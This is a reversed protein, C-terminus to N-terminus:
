GKRYQAQAVALKRSETPVGMLHLMRHQLGTARWQQPQLGDVALARLRKRTPAVRQAVHQPLRQRQNVGRLLRAGM